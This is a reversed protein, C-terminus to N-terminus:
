EVFEPADGDYGSSVRQLPMHSYECDCTGPACICVGTKACQCIPNNCKGIQPVIVSVYKFVQVPSGHTRYVRIVDGDKLPANVNTAIKSNVTVARANVYVEPQSVYNAILTDRLTDGSVTGNSVQPAPLRGTPLPLPCIGGPCSSCAQNVAGAQATAVQNGGCPACGRRGRAESVNCVILLLAVSVLAVVISRM